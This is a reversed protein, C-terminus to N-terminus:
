IIIIVNNYHMMWRTELREATFIVKSRPLLNSPYYGHRPNTRDDPLANANSLASLSLCVFCRQHIDGLFRDVPPSRAHFLAVKLGAVFSSRATGFGSCNFQNCRVANITGESSLARAGDKVSQAFHVTCSPHCTDKIDTQLPGRELFLLM